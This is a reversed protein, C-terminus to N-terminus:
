SVIREDFRKCLTKVGDDDTLYNQQDDCATFNRVKTTILKNLSTFFNRAHSNYGTHGNFSTHAKVYVKKKM